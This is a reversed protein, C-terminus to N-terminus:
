KSCGAPGQLEQGVLIYKEGEEGGWTAQNWIADGCLERGVLPQSYTRQNATVPKVDQLILRRGCTYIPKPVSLAALALSLIIMIHKLPM